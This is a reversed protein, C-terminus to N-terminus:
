SSGSPGRTSWSWRRRPRRSRPTEDALSLAPEPQIDNQPPEDKSQRWARIRQLTEHKQSREKEIADIQDFVFSLRASLSSPKPNPNPDYGSAM